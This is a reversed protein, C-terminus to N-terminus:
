GPGSELAVRVGLVILIVGTVRDIWVRFQEIIPRMVSVLLTLVVYWTLALGVLIASMAALQGTSSLNPQLFQPMISLYILPAKPNLVNVLLGQRYAGRRTLARSREVAPVEQEPHSGRSKWLSRLGLFVLFAAGLYKVASFALDSALVIASLGAAAIGAHVALGSATGFATAIGAWRGRLANPVVVAFDPGPVLVLVLAVASFGLLGAEM